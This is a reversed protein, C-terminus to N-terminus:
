LQYQQPVVSLKVACFRNCLWQASEQCGKNLYFQASLSEATNFCNHWIHQVDTTCGSHPRPWTCPSSHSFWSDTHTAAQFASSTIMQDKKGWLLCTQGDSCRCSFHLPSSLHPVGDARSQERCERERERTRKRERERSVHQYNQKNWPSNSLGHPIKDAFYHSRIKWLIFFSGLFCCIAQPIGNKM